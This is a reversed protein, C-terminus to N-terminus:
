FEYEEVCTCQAFGDWTHHCNFCHMYYVSPTDRVAELYDQCCSPLTLDILPPNIVVSEQIHQLTGGEVLSSRAIPFHRIKLLNKKFFFILYFSNITLM